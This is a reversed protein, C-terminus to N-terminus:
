RSAGPAGQRAQDTMAALADRGRGGSVSAWAIAGAPIPAWFQILRYSAVGLSAVARPAGFGVLGVVLTTEIIGLGGPSIPIAALVNALCYAVLMGAISMRHGFAALFVWLVAADFLWNATAWAVATFALRRQTTLARLRDAAREFAAVIRAGNLRHIRAALRGILQATRRRGRTLALVAAAVIALLAAGVAAATAYVPQFGSAPISVILGVWLLVNLVAASGLSQTAMAFSVHGPDVGSATLLRYQLVGGAAAGGPVVHNVALSSLVIRTMDWLRPREDPPLLSRSLQAYALLALAELAVAGLIVLPNLGAVLGLARRTGGIQPLVLFHLVAAFAMMRAVLSV